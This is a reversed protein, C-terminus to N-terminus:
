KGDERLVPLVLEGLGKLLHSVRKKLCFEFDMDGKAPIQINTTSRSSM